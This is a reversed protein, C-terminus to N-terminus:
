GQEETAVVLEPNGRSNLTGVLEAEARKEHRMIDKIVYITVVISAALIAIITAEHNAFTFYASVNDWATIPSSNM